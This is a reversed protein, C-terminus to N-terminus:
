ANIGRFKRGRKCDIETFDYIGVIVEVSVREVFVAIIQEATDYGACSGAQKRRTQRRKHTQRYTSHFFDCFGLRDFLAIIGVFAIRVETFLYRFCLLKCAFLADVYKLVDVTAEAGSKLVIM